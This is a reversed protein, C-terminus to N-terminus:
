VYRVEISPARVINTATRWAQWDRDLVPRWLYLLGAALLAASLATGVGPLWRWVRGRSHVWGAALGFALGSFHGVNAVPYIRLYTLVICIFLWFWLVRRVRDTLVWEFGADEKRRVVMYGFLAYLLGSLGIAGQEFTLECALGSLGLGLVVFAAARVSGVGAEFARGLTYLWLLNFVIHLLNGHHFSNVFLRWVQGEWYFLSWGWGWKELAEFESLGPSALRVLLFLSVSVATLIFMVPALRYYPPEAPPM